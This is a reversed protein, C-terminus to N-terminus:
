VIRDAWARYFANKYKSEVQQREDTACRSRCLAAVCCPCPEATNEYLGYWIKDSLFQLAWHQMLHKMKDLLVCHRSLLLVPGLQFTQPSVAAKWFIKKQLHKSAIVSQSRWRLKSKEKFIYFNWPKVSM